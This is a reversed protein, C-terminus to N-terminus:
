LGNKSVSASSAQEVPLVEPTEIQVDHRLVHLRDDHLMSVHQQVIVHLLTAVQILTVDRRGRRQGFQVLRVRSAHVIELRHALHVSPTRRHVIQFPNPLRHHEDIRAVIRNHGILQQHGDLLMGTLMKIPTEKTEHPSM